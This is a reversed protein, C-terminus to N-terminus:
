ILSYLLLRSWSAHLPKLNWDNFFHPMNILYIDSNKPMSVKVSSSINQFYTSFYPRDIMNIQRQVLAYFMHDEYCPSYFSPLHVYDALWHYNIFLISLSLLTRAYITSRIPPWIEFDIILPPHSKVNLNPIIFYDPNCILPQLDM